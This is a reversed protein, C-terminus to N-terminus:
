DNMLILSVSVNVVVSRLGIYHHLRTDGQIVSSPDLADYSFMVANKAVSLLVSVGLGSIFEKRLGRFEVEIVSSCNCVCLVM